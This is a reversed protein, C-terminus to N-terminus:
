LQFLSLQKPDITEGNQLQTQTLVQYIPEKVFLTANLIRLIEYLSQDLKLEKKVIAVLVFTALAIWIQIYVANRSTGFFAKIRLHQKIWKFFLEVKWRSHYLEAITLADLLFNNTLYVYSRKREADFYRVRRLEDPYDLATRPHALRIRQDVRIGSARNVKESAVVRFNMGRRARIVFYAGAMDIQRLRAFSLYGRDLIYYAGPEYVLEDMIHVERVNAESIRAFVPINAHVDLLTHVKVGATSGVYHHGRAWPFLSLCLDIITADLAYVAADLEELLREGQYLVRARAILGYAVDQYIQWPRHENAHALTSRSVTSRIGAHYLRSGLARLSAEIDRLSERDALQAFAMCLFQDWCSFPMRRRSPLHKKVIRHFENHDIREMLQSFVTAGLNM